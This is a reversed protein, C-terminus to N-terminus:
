DGKRLTPDPHTSDVQWIEVEGDGDFDAEALVVFSNEEEVVSYKFRGPIDELKLIQGISERGIALYTGYEELHAQELQYLTQLITRARAREQDEISRSTFHYILLTCIVLLLLGVM